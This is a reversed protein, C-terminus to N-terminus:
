ASLTLTGSGACYIWLAQGPILLYDTFPLGTYYVKYTKSVADYMAVTSITSGSYGPPIASAYKATSLTLPCILAWGGGGPVTIPVTYTGTPALGQLSLTQVSNSYVWYGLGEVIAFDLPPPSIGVIFSKDYTVTGSNWGYVADGTKLGLTSAKYGHAVLPVGVL